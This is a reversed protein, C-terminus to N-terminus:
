AGLMPYMFVLMRPSAPRKDEHDDWGGLFVAGPSDAGEAHPIEEASIMLLHEQLPYGKPQGLFLFHMNAGDTRRTVMAAPGVSMMPDETNNLIDRKRRWEGWVRISTPHKPFRLVLPLDRPAKKLDPAAFGRLWYLHFDFVIGIPGNLPFSHRRPLLAHEGTKSFHVWGSTHHSFKVDYEVVIGNRRLNLTKPDPETEPDAESLVGRKTDLYPFPVYISGDQGFTVKFLKFHGFPTAAIVTSSAAALYVLRGERVQEGQTKRPRQKSM